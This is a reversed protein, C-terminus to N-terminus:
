KVYLTDITVTVDYPTVANAGNPVSSRIYYFAFQQDWSPISIQRTEGAPIDTKVNHSASHLMRRQNDYYRITFAIAGVSQAGNNTAFFTERRSRLPKDYGNIDILHAEPNAIAEYEAAATIKSAQTVVPKLAKQTTRQGSVAFCMIVIGAVAFLIKKM